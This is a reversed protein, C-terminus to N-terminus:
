YKNTWTLPNSGSVKHEWLVCAALSRRVQIHIKPQSYLVQVQPVRVGM